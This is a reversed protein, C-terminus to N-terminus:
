RPPRCATSELRSRWVHDRTLRKIALRTSQPRRARYGCTSCTHPRAGQGRPYLRCTLPRDAYVGCRGDACLEKCDFRGPEAAPTILHLLELRGARDRTPYNARVGELQDHAIGQYGIAIQFGRCCAGTCVGGTHVASANM